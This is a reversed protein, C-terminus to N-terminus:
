AVPNSHGALTVHGPEQGASPVQYSLWREPWWATWCIRIPGHGDVSPAHSEESLSWPVSRVFSETSTSIICRGFVCWFFLCRQWADTGNGSHVLGTNIKAPYSTSQAWLSRLVEVLVEDHFTNRKMWSNEKLRKPMDCESAKRKPSMDILLFGATAAALLSYPVDGSPFRHGVFSHAGLGCHCDRNALCLLSKWMFWLFTQWVSRNHYKKIKRPRCTEWHFGLKNGSLGQFVV